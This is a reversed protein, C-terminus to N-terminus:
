QKILVVRSDPSLQVTGTRPDYAYPTGLPDNIPFQRAQIRGLDQLTLPYSGAANKYQELLSKLLQLDRMVALSILHNRANERANSQTAEEYQRQWLAVAVEFAGGKSLSVAALKPLWEPAQPLQSAALWTEGAAKYDKLYLYYVFGKEYVLRWEQPHAHIGKDLLKLAEQPQGAGVPDPEGLFGSGTRYADLLDPDLTTTIDLLTYLNKFRVARKKAEERRGYYQIVRMWYFDGLLRDYGLSMKKLLKPSSFLLLDPDQGGSGIRSQIYDQTPKILLACVLCLILCSWVMKSHLSTRSETM